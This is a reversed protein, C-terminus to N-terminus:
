PTPTSSTQQRNLNITNKPDPKGVRHAYLPRGQDDKVIEMPWTYVVVLPEVYQPFVSGDPEVCMVWTADTSGGPFLGNPEAQGIPGGTGVDQDPNTMSTNYPVGFGKSPCGDIVQGTASYWISWTDVARSIRYDYLQQVIQRELSWDYM